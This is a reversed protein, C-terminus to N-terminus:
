HGGSEFKFNLQPPPLYPPSSLSIAITFVVVKCELNSGFKKLMM